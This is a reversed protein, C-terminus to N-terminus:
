PRWVFLDLVLVVIAAVITLGYLLNLRRSRVAERELTAARTAWKDARKEERADVERVAGRMAAGYIAGNKKRADEEASVQDLLVRTAPSIFAMGNTNKLRLAVEVVLEDLTYDDIRGSPAQEQLYRLASILEEKTYDEFRM